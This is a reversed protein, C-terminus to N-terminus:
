SRPVKNEPIIEPIIPPITTPYKLVECNLTEPGAAPRVAIINVAIEPLLIRKSATKDPILETLVQIKQPLFLILNNEL